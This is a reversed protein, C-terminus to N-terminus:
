GVHILKIQELFTGALNWCPQLCPELFTEALNWCPELFTEALNWCPELLTTLLTGPLNWCPELLTGALNWSQEPKEPRVNRPVVGRGWLNFGLVIATPFYLRWSVNQSAQRMFWSMVRLPWYLWAANAVSYLGHLFRHTRSLQAWKTQASGRFLIRLKWLQMATWFVISIHREMFSFLRVLVVQPLFNTTSGACGHLKMESKALAM